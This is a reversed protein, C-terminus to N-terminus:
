SAQTAPQAQAPVPAGVPPLGDLIPRVGTLFATAIASRQEASMESLPGQLRRSPSNMAQTLAERMQPEANVFAQVRAQAAPQIRQQELLFRYISVIKFLPFEARENLIDWLGQIQVDTLPQDHAINGKTLADYFYNCGYEAMKGEPLFTTFRMPDTAYAYPLLIEETSAGEILMAIPFVIGAMVACSILTPSATGLILLAVGAVALPISCATLLAIGDLKAAEWHQEILENLPAIDREEAFSSRAAHFRGACSHYLMGIPAIILVGLSYVARAVAYVGEPLTNEEGVSVPNRSLIKAGQYLYEASFSVAM